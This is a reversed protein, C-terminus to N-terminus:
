LGLSGALAAREVIIGRREASFAQAGRPRGQKLARNLAYNVVFLRATLRNLERLQEFKNRYISM